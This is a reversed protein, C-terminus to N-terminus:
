AWILSISQELLFPQWQVYLTGSSLTFLRSLEQCKNRILVILLPLIYISTQTSSLLPSGKLEWCSDSIRHLLKSWSMGPFCSFSLKTADHLFLVSTFIFCFCNTSSSLPLLINKQKNAYYHFGLLAVLTSSKALERNRSGGIFTTYLYEDNSARNPFM